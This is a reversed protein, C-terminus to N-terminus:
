WKHKSEHSSTTRPLWAHMWKFMLIWSIYHNSMAICHIQIKFCTCTKWPLFCTGGWITRNNIYIYFFFFCILNIWFTRYFNASFVHVNKHGWGRGLSYLWSVKTLMSISKTLSFNLKDSHASPVCLKTYCTSFFLYMKVHKRCPSAKLLM